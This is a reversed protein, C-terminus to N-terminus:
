TLRKLLEYVHRPNSVRKLVLKVHGEADVAVYAMQGKALTESVGYAEAIHGDADALIPFPARSRRKAEGIQQPTGRQVGLLYIAQKGTGPYAEVVDRAPRSRQAPLFVLLLTQGRYENLRHRHGQEDSADFGPAPSGIELSHLTAM